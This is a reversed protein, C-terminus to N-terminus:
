MSLNLFSYIWQRKPRGRMHPLHVMHPARPLTGCTGGMQPQESVKTNMAKQCCSGPPSSPGLRVDTGGIDCVCTVHEHESFSQIGQKKVVRARAIIHPRTGRSGLHEVCTVHEHEFFQTDM